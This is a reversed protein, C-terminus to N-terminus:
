FLSIVRYSSIEIFFSKVTPTDRCICLNRIVNGRGAFIMQHDNCDLEIIRGKSFDTEYESITTNPVTKLSVENNKVIHIYVDKDRCRNTDVSRSYVPWIQQIRLPSDTLRYHIDWFFKASENSLNNAMVRYIKWYDWSNKKECIKEVSIDKYGSYDFEFSHEQSLAKFYNKFKVSQGDSLILKM